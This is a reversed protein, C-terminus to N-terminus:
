RPLYRDVSYAAAANPPSPTSSALAIFFFVTTSASHRRRGRWLHIVSSRCLDDSYLVGAAAVARWSWVSGRRLKQQKTPNWPVPAENNNNIIQNCRCFRFAELTLNGGYIEISSELNITSGLGGLFRRHYSHLPLVMVVNVPRDCKACTRRRTQFDSSAAAADPIDKDAACNELAMGTISFTASPPFHM